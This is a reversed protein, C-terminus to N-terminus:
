VIELVGCPVNEGLSEIELVAALFDEDTSAM